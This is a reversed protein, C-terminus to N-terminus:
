FRGEDKKKSRKAQPTAQNLSDREGDAHEANLALKIQELVANQHAKSLQSFGIIVEALRDDRSLLAPLPLGLVSAMREATEIDPAHVAKEYRNVRTSAVDEPLGMRVGLEAQSIGLATRAARLRAALVVNIATKPM